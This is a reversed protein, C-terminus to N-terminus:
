GQRTAYLGQYPRGNPQDQNSATEGPVSMQALTLLTMMPVPSDLMDHSSVGGTPLPSVRWDAASPLPATAALSAKSAMVENLALRHVAESQVKTMPAKIAALQPNATKIEGGEFKQAFRDYIQAVSLAQGQKDYFVGPNAKAAAPFLDAAQADPSEKLGTLFRGADGAGLFHAMYLETSGIKCDGGLRANLQDKNDCALEAAMASALAPDHRLALIQQRLTPDAVRAVGDKGSTIQSSLDELGYKDGHERVLSLWTREVFQYLGSASSGKAKATPDLSSEQQAQRLLYDFDVGTRASANHIAQIVASKGTRAMSHATSGAQETWQRVDEGLRSVASM